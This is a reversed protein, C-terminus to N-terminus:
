LAPVYTIIYEHDQVPKSVRLALAWKDIIKEATFMGGERIRRVETDARLGAEGAKVDVDCDTIEYGEPFEIEFLFNITPFAITWECAGCHRQKYHYTGQQIRNEIQDMTWPLPNQKVVKFAYRVKEGKKLPPSFNIRWLHKSETSRVVVPEVKMNFPAEKCVFQFDQPRASLGQTTENLESYHFTAELEHALCEMLVEVRQVIVDASRVEEKVHLFHRLLVPLNPVASALYSRLNFLFRVLDPVAELM